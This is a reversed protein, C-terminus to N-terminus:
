VRDAPLAHQKRASDESDIRLSIMEMCVKFSMERTRRMVRDPQPPEDEGGELGTGDMLEREGEETVAPPAANVKATLPFLKM